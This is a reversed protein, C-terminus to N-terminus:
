TPYVLSRVFYIYGFDSFLREQRQKWTKAADPNTFPGYVEKLTGEPTYELVCFERPPLQVQPM